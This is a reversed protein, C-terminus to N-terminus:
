EELLAECHKLEEEGSRRRGSTNESGLNSSAIQTISKDRMSVKYLQQIKSTKFCNSIILFKHSKKIKRSASSNSDDEDEEEEEEEEQEEEEEEEEDCDEEFDEEGSMQNEDSLKLDENQEPQILQKEMKFDPELSELPVQQHYREGCFLILGEEDLPLLMEKFWPQYTGLSLLVLESKIVDDEKMTDIIEFCDTNTSGGIVYIYRNSFSVASSFARGYTLQMRLEVWEDREIDYREISKQECISQKKGKIM